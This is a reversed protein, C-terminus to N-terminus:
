RLTQAQQIQDCAARIDELPSQGLTLIRDWADLAIRRADKMNVFVEATVSYGNIHGDAFALIDVERAKEPFEDRIISALENVLSARAPQLFNARAMARGYDESILFKVLEWAEEPHETGAFIGFGDTTALTVRQAPGSPFPAVGVRFDTKALIDKLAWSGDEVMALRGGIFADRTGLAQVDLNTAIVGDDWIRARIWELAEMAAPEAMRCVTPDDPDVLHGGWGNIHVQIRDWSIDIMSGWPDTSGDGDRDHTLRRMASLYDDYDWSDDPYGVGYEDFLDKNYYLALAGHYKPVAYRLGDKTLFSAYQAPDWDIIVSEDIDDEIYPSLDLTFGEQAWIPFYACCGQFVDPATGAKMQDLMIDALGKPDPTYFVRINPHTAHFKEMMEEVMPSFWATRWDQYVLQVQPEDQDSPGSGCAMAFGALAISVLILATVKFRTM